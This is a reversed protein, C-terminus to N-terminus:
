PAETTVLRGDLLDSLAVVLAPPLPWGFVGHPRGDSVAVAPGTMGRLFLYAVGGLHAVPDYGDLRWRLYRHLAVAYLAAQLPYDHDAMAVALHDPHYDDSAPPRGRDNLANTKYDAVVFRAGSDPGPIRMVLDISGTLHGALALGIAGDALDTAWTRLPDTPDLHAIMLRGIDAVAATRGAEALRLDFSVENLRDGPAIDALRVGGFLAGLPTDVATRLGDILLQRGSRTDADSEWRPTLDLSRWALERDIGAGFLDGLDPSTFDVRELVSHVLTGFAAGAPLRTLAAPVYQAGSSPGGADAGKSMGDFGTGTGEGPLLTDAGIEGEGIEREDGAGSDGLSPDDPDFNAAAAHHTISSFSWRQKTRDPSARLRAIELEEPAHTADQDIWQTRPVLRADITRVAIEGGARAILPALSSEIDEDPPVPVADSRYLAPDIAGDARAFLVRALASRASGKGNAWWVITQHRARTLAVYVLRLHEGVMREAAQDRRITAEADTPWTTGQALDFTKVGTGPDVYIVEEVGGPRHWMTPVCVIPFELGKATWITMVQVSEAESEIRRAATDGDVDADSESVPTSDLVALLGTVSARGSPFGGHVLEALHDLDTMNRDGDARGLVRAVLGSESWVQALVDAVTHTALLESWSRLQEQLVALEPDTATAVEEAGWGCFWSMAFTAARRRDSPRGMAYLLWRIQEAAPSQLVSGGRAVVAPVGQAVLAAQVSAAQDHKNVLVAIESPRVRDPEATAESAPIRAHDLLDRIREVLDAEIAREASGGIVEAPQNKARTIGAGVALRLSLAPLPEGDVTRLRRVEHRPAASVPVFRISEAGFTAGRFLADLSAVVAGDSRWNTVLSRHEVLSDDGVAALYTDIDAGRFRYIAQKPDGVVVLRTGEGQEGCLRRFIDWQVPDTDQFEDILAVKFRNRLADVAAASGPGTLADRLEVVVDSFSRTGARLRRDGVEAASREVLERLLLQGRTAGHGPMPALALDPRGVLTATASRLIALEPLDEASPETVAARALVDACTQAVLEATDDVLTADPDTGVAAGLASRAQTAFGHITAITASDFETVAKRLRELRLPRHDSALRVLLADDTPVGEDRELHDAAEILRERVKARLENTAARTFTVILLESASVDEEAIFRTALAALAYTKGTGASAEIALTGTPLEDALDLPIYARATM